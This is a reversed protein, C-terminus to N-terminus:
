DHIRLFEVFNGRLTKFLLRLKLIVNDDTGSSGTVGRLAVLVDQGASYHDFVIWGILILFTWHMYIGIGAIEAIKWSWKMSPELPTKRPMSVSQDTTVNNM